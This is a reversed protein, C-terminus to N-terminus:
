NIKVEEIIKMSPKDVAKRNTNKNNKRKKKFLSWSWKHKRNKAKEAKFKEHEIRGAEKQAAKKTAISDLKLDLSKKIDSRNTALFIKIYLIKDKYINLDACASITKYKMISFDEIKNGKFTKYKRYKRFDDITSVRAPTFRNDDIWKNKAFDFGIERGDKTIGTLIIATRPDAVEVLNILKM